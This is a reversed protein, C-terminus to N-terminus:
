PQEKLYKDLYTKIFATIAQQSIDFENAALRYTYGNVLVSRAALAARSKSTVISDFKEADMQKKNM